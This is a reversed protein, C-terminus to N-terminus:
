EKDNTPSSKITDADDQVMYDNSGCKPCNYVLDETLEIEYGLTTVRVWKIGCNNCIVKIRM